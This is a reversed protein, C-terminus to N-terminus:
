FGSLVLLSLAAGVWAITVLFGDSVNLWFLSPLQLFAETRSGFHAAVRDMFPKAPLIGNEGVLPVIQNAAVLFAILYVFGLLRLILFRTLWYSPTAHPSPQEAKDTPEGPSTSPQEENPIM